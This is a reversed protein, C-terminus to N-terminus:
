KSPPKRRFAALAETSKQIRVESGIEAQPSIRRAEALTM